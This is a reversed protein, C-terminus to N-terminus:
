ARQFRTFLIQTRTEKGMRAFNRGIRGLGVVGVSKGALDLGLWEPQPWVWGDRDMAHQLPKLRKALALLLAFAGEAVTEEAYEPINVVPVGRRKSADIDIADIGVGYKVIAKLKTGANIIRATIPRYCMLPLDADAVAAVLQDDSVTEPLTVLEAGAACLAADVGPLVLERDTRVIKM